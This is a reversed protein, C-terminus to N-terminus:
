PPLLHQFTFADRNIEVSDDRDLPNFGPAKKQVWKHELLERAEVLSRERGNRVDDEAAEIDRLLRADEHLERWASSDEPLEALLSLTQQKTSMHGLSDGLWEPPLRTKWAM